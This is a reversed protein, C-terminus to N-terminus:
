STQDVEVLCMVDSDRKGVEGPIIGERDSFHPANPGYLAPNWVDVSLSSLQTLTCSALLPDRRPPPESTTPADEVASSGECRTAHRRGCIGIAYM